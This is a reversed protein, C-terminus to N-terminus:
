NGTGTYDGAGLEVVRGIRKCNKDKAETKGLCEGANGCPQAVKEM